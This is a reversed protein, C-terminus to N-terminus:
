RGGERGINGDRGSRRVVTIKCRSGHSQPYASERCHRDTPQQQPPHTDMRQPFRRADARNGLAQYCAGVVAATIVLVLLGLLVRGIWRKVRGKRRPASTATENEM